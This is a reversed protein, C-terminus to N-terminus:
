PSYFITDTGNSYRLLNVSDSLLINTILDRGVGAWTRQIAQQMVTNKKKKGGDHDM